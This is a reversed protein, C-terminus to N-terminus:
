SIGAHVVVSVPALSASPMGACPASVTHTDCLNCSAKCTRQMSPMTCSATGDELLRMCDGSERTDTCTSSSCLLCSKACYEAMYEELLHATLSRLLCLLPPLSPCLHAAPAKTRCISPSGLKIAKTCRATCMAACPDAEQSMHHVWPPAQTTTRAAVSAVAAAAQCRAPASGM